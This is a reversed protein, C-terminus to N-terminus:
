RGTEVLGFHENVYAQAEASFSQGHEPTGPVGLTAGTWEGILVLTDGSYKRLCELGYRGRGGYDPWMLLLARGELDPQELVEPGGERLTADFAVGGCTPNGIAEASQFGNIITPSNFCAVDACYPAAQLLCAPGALALGALRTLLRPVSQRGDSKVSEGASLLGGAAM